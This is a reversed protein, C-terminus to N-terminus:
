WSRPNPRELGKNAVEDHLRQQPLLVASPSQELRRQQRRISRPVDDSHEGGHLLETPEVENNATHNLTVGANLVAFAMDVALPPEINPSNKGSCFNHLRCLAMVLTTTKKLGLSKSMPRRLIGWRHVLKGFSCEVQIRLQSHYFNFNDQSTGVKSGKFPTVMYSSNTYANDGFIVLNPALFGPQEIKAKLDSTAFALFDSTSAPHKIQVDLFRGQYDVTGMLNLGFKHKRGCYFKKAGCKAL